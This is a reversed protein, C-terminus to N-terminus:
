AVIDGSYWCRWRIKWPQFGLIYINWRMQRCLWSHCALDFIKPLKIARGLKTVDAIKRKLTAVNNFCRTQKCSIHKFSLAISKYRRSAQTQAGVARNVSVRRECRLRARIVAGWGKELICCGITICTFADIQFFLSAQYSSRRKNQAEFRGLQWRHSRM